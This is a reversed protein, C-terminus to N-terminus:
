CDPSPAAVLIRQGAGEFEEVVCRDSLLRGYSATEDPFTDPSDFFPDFTESVAVVYDVGTFVYTSFATSGLLEKARVDYRGDDLVPARNEVIIKSGAPVNAEIWTQADAWPDERLEATARRAATLPVALAAIALVAGAAVRRRRDTAAARQVLAYAGIAAAAAVTGTVPLLNRAFRVPFLSIFVLYAGSQILLVLAIRRVRDSTTALSCAALPLALGFSRWMWEANFAPSSGQNGFHGSSYHNAESGVGRVFELPDIVAGINTICFVAGAVVAAELLLRRSVGSRRAVLVHAVILGVAVAVANYKAAAALGIMAGTLLYVRRTPRVTVAAAGLAALTAAAGTMADPTVFIGFRLDLASLAVLLSSLTAVWARRTALWGIAGAAAITVLGPVVGTAWRLGTLLGPHNVQASALTQREVLPQEDPDYSGFAATPVLVASQALFVLAPYNYFGPDLALDDAMDAGVEVNTLEDWHYDYPLLAGAWLSRLVGGLLVATLIGAVALRKRKATVEPGRTTRDVLRRVIPLPATDLTVESAIQGGAV